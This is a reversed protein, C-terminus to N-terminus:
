AFALETAPFMIKGEYELQSREFETMYDDAVIAWGLINRRFFPNDCEIKERLAMVAVTADTDSGKFKPVFFDEGGKMKWRAFDEDGYNEQDQTWIHLKM